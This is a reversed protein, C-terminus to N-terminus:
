NDGVLEAYLVGFVNQRVFFCPKEQPVRNRPMLLKLAVSTLSLRSTTFSILLYTHSYTLKSSRHSISLAIHGVLLRFMFRTLWEGNRGGIAILARNDSESLRAVTCIVCSTVCM